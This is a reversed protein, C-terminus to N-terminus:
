MIKKLNDLYDNIFDFTKRQREKHSGNVIIEKNNIFHSLVFRLFGTRIITEPKNISNRKELLCVYITDDSRGVTKAKEVLQKKAGKPLLNRESLLSLRAKSSINQNNVPSIYM